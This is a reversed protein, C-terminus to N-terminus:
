EDGKKRTDYLDADRTKVTEDSPEDALAEGPTETLIVGDAAGAEMLETRRRRAALLGGPRYIMVIILLLGFVAIRGSEINFGFVEEGGSLERVVEPLTAVLIAGLVAGAISGLGGIVVACLVLISQLLPFSNPAIYGLKVSYIWGAVGSVSAGIVFALVKMKTVPVGMAAAAVEDERIAAWYRGVRSNDLHRIMLVALLIAPICLFWWYYEADLGFDLKWFPLDIVPTPIQAIGRSGNTIEMNNVSQRVIEHFGLTVIALYDGRLRLTPVGLVFGALMAVLVAFPLVLWPSWTVLHWQEPSGSDTMLATTYAGLMFFAVYGLDLLGALGVVVGLGLTLLIWYGTTFLVNVGYGGQLIPFLDAEMLFPISAMLAAAILYRFYGLRRWGRWAINGPGVVADPLVRSVRPYNRDLYTRLDEASPARSAM